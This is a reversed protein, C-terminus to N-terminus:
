HSLLIELCQGTLRYNAEEPQWGDCVSSLFVRGVKKCNVERVLFKPPNVKVDVFIGWPEDSYSFSTVFRAYCYRCGDECVAYCNVVYDALGSKNLTM